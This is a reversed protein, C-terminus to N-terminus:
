FDAIFICDEELPEESDLEECDENEEEENVPAIESDVLQQSLMTDKRVAVPRKIAMM